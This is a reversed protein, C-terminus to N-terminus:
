PPAAVRARATGLTVDGGQIPTTEPPRDDELANGGSPLGDSSDLLFADFAASRADFRLDVGQAPPNAVRIVRWGRDWTAPTISAGPAGDATALNVSVSGIGSEAPFAVSLM